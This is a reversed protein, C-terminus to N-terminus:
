MAFNFQEEYEFIVSWNLGNLNLLEGRDDLLRVSMKYIDVPGIYERYQNQTNATNEIYTGTSDDSINLPITAIINKVNSNNIENNGKVLRTYMDENDQTSSFAEEAGYYQTNTLNTNNTGIFGIEEECTVPDVANLKAYSPIEIKTEQYNSTTINNTISSNVYDNLSFLLYKYKILDIENESQINIINSNTGPVERNALQIIMEDYGLSKGLTDNVDVYSQNTYISACENSREFFSLKYDKSNYNYNYNMYVKTYYKDNQKILTFYSYKSLYPDQNNTIDNNYQLKANIYDILKNSTYFGDEILIEGNENSINSKSLLNIRANFINFNKFPIPSLATIKNESTDLNYIYNSNIYLYTNWTNEPDTFEVNYDAQTLFNIININVQLQSNNNVDINCPNGINYFSSSVDTLSQFQKNIQNILQTKNYSGSNLIIQKEFTNSIEQTNPTIIFCINNTSVDYTNENLSIDFIPTTFVGSIDYYNWFNGLTYKFNNQNFQKTINVSLTFENSSPDIYAYTSNENENNLENYQFVGLPNNTDKTENNATIIASNIADMYEHFYYGNNTSNNLEVTYDNEGNNYNEKTCTFVIRPNSYIDYYETYTETQAPNESIIENLENISQDFVFASNQGLWFSSEPFLVATKCNNVNKTTMNNLYISMTYYSNTQTTSIYFYSYENNIINSEQIARNVADSLQNRSYLANVKLDLMIKYTALVTINSSDVYSYSTTNYTKFENTMTNPVYQVIQFYNNETTVEFIPLSFLVPTITYLPLINKNSNITTANFNNTTFGLLLIFTNYSSSENLATTYYNESYHKNLDVYFNTSKNDAIEFRTSGFNIDTYTNSADIIAQNLANLLSDKSYKGPTVNIKINSYNSFNSSIIFNGTINEIIDINTYWPPSLYINFFNQNEIINHWSLPIQISDLRIRLVNKLPSSLDFSFDTSVSYGQERYKSDIIIKKSITTPHNRFDNYCADILTISQDVINSNNEFSEINEHSEESFFHDYIDNYFNFLKKSLDDSKNKQEELLLLIKAELERDTPNNMDLINYLEDDNYQQVNYMENEDM